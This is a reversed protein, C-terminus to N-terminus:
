RSLSRSPGSGSLRRKELSTDKRTEDQVSSNIVSPASKTAAVPIKAKAGVGVGSGSNSNNLDVPDSSPKKLRSNKWISQTNNKASINDRSAANSAEQGDSPNVGTQMKAVTESQKQIRAELDGEALVAMQRLTQARLDNLVKEAQSSLRVLGKEQLQTLHDVSMMQLIQPTQQLEPNIQLMKMIIEKLLPTPDMVELVAAAAEVLVYLYLIRCIM